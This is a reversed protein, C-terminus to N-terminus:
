ASSERVDAPAASEPADHGDADESAVVPTHALRECVFGIHERLVYFQDAFALPM